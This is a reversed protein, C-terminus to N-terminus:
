PLEIDLPPLPCPPPPPVAAGPNGEEANRCRVRLEWVLERLMPDVIAANNVKGKGTLKGAAKAKRTAYVGIDTIWQALDRSVAVSQVNKKRQDWTHSKADAPRSTGKKSAM